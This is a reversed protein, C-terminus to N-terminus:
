CKLSVIWRLSFCFKIVFISHADDSSFSNMNSWSAAHTGVVMRNNYHERCPSGEHYRRVRHHIDSNAFVIVMENRADFHCEWLNDSRLPGNNDSTARISWYSLSCAAETNGDFHSKNTMKVDEMENFIVEDFQCADLCGHGNCTRFMDVVKM